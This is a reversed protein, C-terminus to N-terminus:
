IKGTLNIGCRLSVASLLECAGANERVGVRRDGKPPNHRLLANFFEHPLSGRVKETKKQPFTSSFYHELSFAIESFFPFFM